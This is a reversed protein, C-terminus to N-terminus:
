RKHTQFGPVIPKMFRLQFDQATRVGKFRRRLLGNRVRKPLWPAFGKMVLNFQRDHLLEEFVIPMEDENYPRIEDFEQINM